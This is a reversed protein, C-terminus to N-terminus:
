RGFSNNLAMEKCTGTYYNPLNEDFDKLAFHDDTTYLFKDIGFTQAALMVKIYMSYEKRAAVDLSYIWNGHFWKPKDGIIVVDIISRFHKVMSRIAFKLEEGNHHDDTYPILIIM